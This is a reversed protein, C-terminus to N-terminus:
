AEAGKPPAWTVRGDADRVARYGGKLMEVTTEARHLSDLLEALTEPRPTCAIQVAELWTGIPLGHTRARDQNWKTDAKRLADYLDAVTAGAATLLPAARTERQERTMAANAISFLEALAPSVKEDDVM